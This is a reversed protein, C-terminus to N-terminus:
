QPLAFFVFMRVCAHKLNAARADCAHQHSSGSKITANIYNLTGADVYAEAAGHFAAQMTWELAKEARDSGKYGKGPHVYVFGDWFNLM